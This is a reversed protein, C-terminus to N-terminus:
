YLPAASLERWLFSPTCIIFGEKKSSYRYRRCYMELGERM